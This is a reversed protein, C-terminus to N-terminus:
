FTYASVYELNGALKMLCILHQGNAAVRRTYRRHHLRTHTLMSYALKYQKSIYQYMTNVFYQRVTSKVIQFM